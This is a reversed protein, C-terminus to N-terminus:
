KPGDKRRLDVRQGLRGDDQQQLEVRVDRRQEVPDDVSAEGAVVLDGVSAEEGEGGDEGRPGHVSVFVKLKMRKSASMWIVWM